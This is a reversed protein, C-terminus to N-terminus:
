GALVPGERVSTVNERTNIDAHRGASGPRPVPGAFPQRLSHM